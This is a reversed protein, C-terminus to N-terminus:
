QLITYDLYQEGPFLLFIITYNCLPVSSLLLFSCVVTSFLMCINLNKLKQSSCALLLYSHIIENRYFELISLVLWHHCFDTVHNEEFSISQFPIHLFPGPNYFYEEKHNLQLQVPAHMKWFTDIKM